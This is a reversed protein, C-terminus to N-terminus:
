ELGLQLPEGSAGEPRHAALQGSPGRFQFFTEGGRVMHLDNRAREEIAESGERLSAIEAAWAQNRNRLAANAQQRTALQRQLDAVRLWGGHGFWLPWQIVLALAALVAALLRM